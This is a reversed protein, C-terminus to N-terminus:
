VLMQNSGATRSPRPSKSSKLRGAPGPAAPIVSADRWRRRRTVDSFDGIREIFAFEDLVPLLVAHPVCPDHGSDPGTQPQQD